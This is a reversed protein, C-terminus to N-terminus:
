KTIATKIIATKHDSNSVCVVRVVEKQKMYEKIRDIIQCRRLSLSPRCSHAELEREGGCSEKDKWLRGFRDMRYYGEDMNKETFRSKKKGGCLGRIDTSSIFWEFREVCTRCIEIKEEDHRGRFTFCNKLSVNGMLINM